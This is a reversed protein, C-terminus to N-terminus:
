FFSFIKVGVERTTPKKPCAKVIKVKDDVGNETKVYIYIYESLMPKTPYSM